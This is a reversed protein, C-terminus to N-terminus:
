KYDPRLRQFCSKVMNEFSCTKDHGTIFRSAEADFDWRTYLGTPMLQSMSCSYLRNEDIGVISKRLDTFKRFLTKDVVTKRTSM